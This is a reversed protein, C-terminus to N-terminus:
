FIHHYIHCYPQTGKHDYYDQHYDEAPWFQDAFRLTTAVKYGKQTLINVYMEAIAKQSDNAYFIASLYQAGIDPGQGDTQTFDHIEFFLKVLAEYSTELPDYIVEITELHGSDGECVQHYTPHEVYGGMFGVTTEVVGHVKSFHYETGWFCGSAFWATETKILENPRFELSLSNVCHRVNKPTLSEGKFVHGLHAGCAACLIEERHGDVDLQHRIANPIEDDFSPWGCHSDFKDDSRFLPAQCQKCLYLGAQKNHLLAGSFPAETGKHIIIYEEDPTLKKLKM